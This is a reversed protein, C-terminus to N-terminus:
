MLSWSLFFFVFYLIGVQVLHLSVIQHIVLCCDLLDLVVPTSPFSLGCWVFNSACTCGKKLLSYSGMSPPEHGGSCVWSGVTSPLNLPAAMSVKNWFFFFFISLLDAFFVFVGEELLISLVHLQIQNQSSKTEDSQNASTGRCVWRIKTTIRQLIGEGQHALHLLALREFFQSRVIGYQNVM